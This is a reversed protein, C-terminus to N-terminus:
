KKTKKFSIFQVKIGGNKFLFIYKKYGPFKTKLKVDEPIILGLVQPSRKILDKIIKAYYDHLNMEIKIRKGYPPNFIILSNLPINELNNKYNGSIFNIKQSQDRKKDFFKNEDIGIIDMFLDKPPAENIKTFYKKTVPIFNASFQEYKSAAFLSHAEQPFSGSGCMPDVFSTPIKDLDKICLQILGSAINERIPAIAGLNKSKRKYLAIGSLDLSVQCEDDQIKFYINQENALESIKKRPNGKLWEKIASEISKRAKTSHIIRSKKLSVKINIKETYLYKEWEIKKTKNYLRPFDKVRFNYIRLLVRTAIKLFVIAQMAHPDNTYIEVGGSEICTEYNKIGLQNLWFKIEENQILEFGIPCIVFLCIKKSDIM